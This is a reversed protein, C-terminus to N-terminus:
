NGIKITTMPGKVQASGSLHIESESGLKESGSEWTVRGEVQGSIQTYTSVDHEENNSGYNMGAGAKVFVSEESGTLEVGVGGKLVTEAKLPGLKVEEDIGLEGGVEMTAKTTRGTKLSNEIEFKVYPSLKPGYGFNFEVGIETKWRNCDFEMTTFPPIFIDSKYTCHMADFDPLNKVQGQEAEKKDCGVEFECQLGILLDLMRSKISAINMEYESNDEFAYLSLRAWEGLFQKQFSLMQNNRDNWLSNAKSNIEAAAQFRSGCDELKKLKENYEEKWQKIMDSAEVLKKSLSLMKDNSQIVLLQLKRAATNHVSNNYPRIYSQDKVTKKMLEEFKDGWFKLDANVKDAVASLKEKWQYWEERITEVVAGGTMPYEPITNLFKEYGLPEVPSPYPFPIDDYSLEGGFDTLENEKETTYDEQIARKISQQAEQKNGRAMCIRANTLNAQSNLSYLHISQDLYNKSQNMDGLGFWAQGLNNLITSNNPFKQNLNQLIPIAAHDGGMMTLFAAYNNLNNANSMDALCVKGMLYIGIEPYGNAWCTNAINALTKTSNFKSKKMESYLEEAKTKDTAPIKKDVEAVVNKVFPVLQADSLVGDPLQKIRANDRTPVTYKPKNDENIAQQITKNSMKSLGTTVGGMMQVQKKLMALQTEMDKITEAGAETKKADAIQKELDTIQKNLDNIVEQMQSQMETRSPMVQKQSPVQQNQSSANLSALLIFSLLFFMRM